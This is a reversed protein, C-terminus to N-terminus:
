HTRRDDVDESSASTLQDYLARIEPNVESLMLYLPELLELARETHEAGGRGEGLKSLTTIVKVLASFELTQPTSALTEPKSNGVVEQYARLAIRFQGRAFFLDGLMTDFTKRQQGDMTNRAGKQLTELASDLDGEMRHAEALQIRLKIDDPAATLRQGYERVKLEYLARALEDRQTQLSPNAERSLRADIELLRRSDLAIQLDAQRRVIPQTIANGTFCQLARSMVKLREVDKLRSAALAEEIPILNTELPEHKLRELAANYDFGKAPTDYATGEPADAHTKGSSIREGAAIAEAGRIAATLRSEAPFRSKQVAAAVAIANGLTRQFQFTEPADTGAGNAKGLIELGTILSDLKISSSDERLKTFFFVAIDFSLSFMRAEFAKVALSPIANLNCERTVFQHLARLLAKTEDTSSGLDIQQAVSADLRVCPKGSRSVLAFIAAKHDADFALGQFIQTIALEPAKAIQQMGYAISQAAMSAAKPGQFLPTTREQPLGM